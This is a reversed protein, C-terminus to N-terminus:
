GEAYFYSKRKKEITVEQFITPSTKKYFIWQSETNRFLIESVFDNKYPSRRLSKEM